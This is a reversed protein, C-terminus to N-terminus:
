NSGTKPEKWLYNIGYYKLIFLKKEHTPVLLFGVIVTLLIFAFGVIAIYNLQLKVLLTNKLL